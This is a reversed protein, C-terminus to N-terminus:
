IPIYFKNFDRGREENQRVYIFGCIMLSAFIRLFLTLFTQVLSKTLYSNRKQADGIINYFFIAKILSNPPMKQYNETFHIISNFKSQNTGFKYHGFKEILSKLRCFHYNQMSVLKKDITKDRTLSLYGIFIGLKDELFSKEMIRLQLDRDTRKFKINPM